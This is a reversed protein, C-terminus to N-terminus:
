PGACSGRLGDGFFDGGDAGRGAHDVNASEALQFDVAGIGAFEDLPDVGAAEGFHLGACGAVTQHAVFRSDDDVVAENGAKGVVTEVDGGRRTGGSGDVALHLPPGLDPPQV